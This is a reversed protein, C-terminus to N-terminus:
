GGHRREMIHALVLPQVVEDVALQCDAENKFYLGNDQHANYKDVMLVRYESVRMNCVRAFSDDSMMSDGSEFQWRIFYGREPDYAAHVSPEDPAIFDRGYPSGNRGM